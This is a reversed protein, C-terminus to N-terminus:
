FQKCEFCWKASLPKLMTVSTQFVYHSRLHELLLDGFNDAIDLASSIVLIVDNDKAFVIFLM